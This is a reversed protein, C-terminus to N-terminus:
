TLDAVSYDMRAILVLNSSPSVFRWQSECARNPNAVSNPRMLAITCSRPCVRARTCLTHARKCLACAHVLTPLGVCKYVHSPVSAYHARSCTRPCVHAWTGSQDITKTSAVYSFRLLSDSKKGNYLFIRNHLCVATDLM